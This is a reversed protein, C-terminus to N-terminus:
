RNHVTLDAEIPTLIEDEYGCENTFETEKALKRAEERAQERSDAEVNFTKDYWVYRRVKVRYTAM